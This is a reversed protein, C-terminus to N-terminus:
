PQKERPYSPMWSIRLGKLCFQELKTKKEQRALIALRQSEEVIKKEHHMDINDRAYERMRLKGLVKKRGIKDEEHRKLMAQLNMDDNRREVWHQVLMTRYNYPANESEGQHRELMSERLREEISRETNHRKMMEEKEATERNGEVRHRAIM